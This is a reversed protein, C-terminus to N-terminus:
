LTVKLEATAISTPDFRQKISREIAEKSRPVKGKFLEKGQKNTVTFEKDLDLLKDSLRLTISAINNSDLLIKQGDITATIM